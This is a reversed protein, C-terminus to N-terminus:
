KREETDIGIIRVVQAGKVPAQLIKLPTRKRGTERREHERECEHQEDESRTLLKVSPSRRPRRQGNRNGIEFVEGYTAALGISGGDSKTGGTAVGELLGKAKTYDGNMQM